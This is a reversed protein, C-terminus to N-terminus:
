RQLLEQFEAKDKLGEFNPTDRLSAGSVGAAVAKQLTEVARKADRLQAYVIGANLLLDPSKDNLRLSAQLKNLAAAKEGRMAHYMAVYSLAEADQPNVRLRDEGLRIAKGYAERAEARKGESWYYADGLNGWLSYDEADLKVAQEFQGAAEAYRRMQFLATALNSYAFATPRIQLSHELVPIAEQYRGQLVYVGGLNSYGMFSDPALEVVRSYMQRAEDYRADHQYYLGLWNYTAWYNPRMAIAQKYTEEAEKSRGMREYTQALGGQVTEDAPQLRLAEQYQALAKENEGTGLFVRGLCSHAAALQPANKEAVGCSEVAQQVWAKEHTAQYRRWFAEGLGAQAAAFNPSLAIAQRFVTIANEVNEPKVYDQLYGLGQLYFDYAAPQLRERAVGFNKESNAPVNLATVVSEFVRDQLGFSDDQNATVTGSRVQRKSSTDVLAYNVRLQQDARQVSLTLVVTAGLQQRAAGVSSIRKARMESIPIVDLREGQNLEGLRSTLTDALGNEFAAQETNSGAASSLVGLVPQAVVAGTGSGSSLYRGSYVALAGAAGLLTVVVAVALWRLKRPDRSVEVRGRQSSTIAQLAACVEGARQYRRAPDKELCREIVSALGSPVHAPLSPLPERSIATCLQFLTTGHFPRAGAALEYLVIGLSWIDTQPRIGSAELQEPAMFPFTGALSASADSTITEAAQKDLEQPDTRQALGFDLVKADGAKTILVNLPKIDGHVVGHSHAYELAAAIQMGYLIVSSSAMGEQRGLKSLPKGDIFEMAIFIEGDQDGVEYISCINPHNLASAARAERRLRERGRYNAGAHNQLFKLAVTRHLDTDEARYVVGNGGSGLPDLVRYHSISSHVLV